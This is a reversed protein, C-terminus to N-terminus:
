KKMKEYRQLAEDLAERMELATIPSLIISTTSDDRPNIMKYRVCVLAGSFQQEETFAVEVLEVSGQGDGIRWGVIVHFKPFDTNEM